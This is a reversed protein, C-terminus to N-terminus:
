NELFTTLPLTGEGFSLVKDDNCDGDDGDCEM